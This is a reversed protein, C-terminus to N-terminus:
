FFLILYIIIQLRLFLCANTSILVFINLKVQDTNRVRLIVHVPMIM